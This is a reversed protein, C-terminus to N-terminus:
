MAKKLLISLLLPHVEVSLGGYSIEISVLGSHMLLLLVIIVLDLFVLAALLILRLRPAQLMEFVFDWLTRGVVM